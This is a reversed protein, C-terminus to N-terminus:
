GEVLPAAPLALAPAFIERLLVEANRAEIAFPITVLAVGFVPFALAILGAPEGHALAVLGFVCGFTAGTMWILLFGIVFVHLRMRIRVSAGGSHSPEVVAHIIPLFSNRYSIRRWFRFETDSLAGGVFPEEDDGLFNFLGFGRPKITRKRIEIVAVNPPWSTEIVLDRWPLLDRLQM